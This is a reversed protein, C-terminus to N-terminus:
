FKTVTLMHTVQMKGDHAKMKLQPCITVPQSGEDILRSKMVKWYNRAAQYDNETLIAVIDVVSFLWEEKEDDWATRIRSDEFLQIENGM